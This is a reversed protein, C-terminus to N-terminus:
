GNKIEFGAAGLEPAIEFDSINELLKFNDEDEDAIRAILKSVIHDTRRLQLTVAAPVDRVSIQLLFMMSLLLSNMLIFIWLKTSLLVNESFVNEMVFCIIASNSIVSLVNMIQFIVMWTGIDQARKPQPRQFVYMLKFADARIEVWNNILGFLPTLPMASVFLTMYGFQVAM